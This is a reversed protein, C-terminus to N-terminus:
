HVSPDSSYFIKKVGTTSIQLFEKRRHGSSNNHATSKERAGGQMEGHGLLVRSSSKIVM